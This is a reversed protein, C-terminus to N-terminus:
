FDMDEIVLTKQGETPGRLFGHNQNEKELKEWDLKNGMQMIEGQENLVVYFPVSQFGLIAKAREKDREEM